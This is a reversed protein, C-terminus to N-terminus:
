YGRSADVRNELPAGALFRELNERFLRHLNPFLAAPSTSVHPSLFLNPADWLPHDAPLPEESAVDLAAGALHGSELAAILAPEDVLSGRGVNCFFAGPRMTEFAAADMLGITEPTEPVAAAVADARGLMTALESTPLVEDVNPATSGPGGSRRTALVTMGFAKAREAVIANIHGLGILGLTCGSVERGYLTQDWDHRRQAAEIAPFRKWHQLIRGIVFEGIALANSGANSTLAIGAEDLGASQLQGTGAGVAQVWRLRPAVEHVDYPLDIVIAVDLRAFAARQADTLAPAQARLDPADPKGRASRLDHPEDYPEVVVEIRPDMAELAAVEQALGAAPGYWEVPYLIGVVVPDGATGPEAASGVDRAM